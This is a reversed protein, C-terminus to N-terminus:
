LKNIRDSILVFVAGFCFLGLIVMDWIFVPSQIFAVFDWGELMAGVFFLMVSVALIAVGVIILLKNRNNM